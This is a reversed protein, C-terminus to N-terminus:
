KKNEKYKQHLRELIVPLGPIADKSGNQHIDHHCVMCVCVCSMDSGKIGMGGSETHHAQIHHPYSCLCCPQTRLWALYAPNRETRQKWNPPM